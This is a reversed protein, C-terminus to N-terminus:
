MLEIMTKPTYQQLVFGDRVNDSPTFDVQMWEGDVLCENWAHANGNQNLGCRCRTPIGANNLVVYAIKAYQACVGCQDEISQLMEVEVYENRYWLLGQVTECAAKITNYDSDQREVRYESLIKKTISPDDIVAYKKMRVGEETVEYTFLGGIAKADLANPNEVTENWLYYNTFASAQQLDDFIILKGENYKQAISHFEADAGSDYRHSFNAIEIYTQDKTYTDYNIIEYYNSYKSAMKDYEEQPDGSVNYENLVEDYNKNNRAITEETLNEWLKAQVVTGRGIPRLSSMVVIVVASVFILGTMFLCFGLFKNNGKKKNRQKLAIELNQPENYTM